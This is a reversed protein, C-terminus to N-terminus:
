KSSVTVRAVKQGIDVIFSRAIGSEPSSIRVTKSENMSIDGTLSLIKSFDKLEAIVTSVLGAETSNGLLAPSLKVVGIEYRCESAPMLLYKMSACDHKWLEDVPRDLDSIEEDGEATDNEHQHSTSPMEGPQM